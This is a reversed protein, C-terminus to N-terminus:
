TEGKVKEKKGRNEGGRLWYPMAIIIEEKREM